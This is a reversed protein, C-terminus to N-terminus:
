LPSGIWARDSCNCVRSKHRGRCWTNVVCCQLHLVPPTLRHNLPPRTSLLVFAAPGPRQQSSGGRQSAELRFVWRGLGEWLQDRGLRGWIGRSESVPFLPGGLSSPLSSLHGWRHSAGVAPRLQQGAASVWIELNELSKGVMQAWSNGHGSAQERALM